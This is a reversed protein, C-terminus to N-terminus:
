NTIFLYIIGDVHIRIQGVIVENPEDQMQIIERKAM